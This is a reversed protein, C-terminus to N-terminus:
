ATLMANSEGGILQGWDSGLEQFARAFRTGFAGGALLVRKQNQYSKKGPEQDLLWIDYNCGM